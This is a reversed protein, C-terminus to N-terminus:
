KNNIDERKLVKCVKDYEVQKFTLRLCGSVIDAKFFDLSKNLNVIVSRIPTDKGVKCLIIGETETEMMEVYSIRLKRLYNLIELM